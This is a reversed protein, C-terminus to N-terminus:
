KRRWSVQALVLGAPWISATRPASVGDRSKYGWHIEQELAQLGRKSGEEPRFVTDQVSPGSELFSKPEMLLFGMMSKGNRQSVSIPGEWLGPMM